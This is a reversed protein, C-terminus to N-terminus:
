AVRAVDVHASECSAIGFVAGQCYDLCQSVVLKCLGRRTLSKCFMVPLNFAASANEEGIVRRCIVPLAM